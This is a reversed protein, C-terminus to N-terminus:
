ESDLEWTWGSPDQQALYLYAQTYESLQYLRILWKNMLLPKSQRYECSSHPDEGGGGEERVVRRRIRSEVTRHPDNRRHDCPIGIYICSMCHTLQINGYSLTPSVHIEDNHFEKAISQSLGRIAFKGPSSVTCNPSGRRAGTASTFALFGRKGHSDIRCAHM